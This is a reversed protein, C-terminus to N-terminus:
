TVAGMLFAFYGAGISTYIMELLTHVRGGYDLEAYM